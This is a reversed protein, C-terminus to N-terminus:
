FKLCMVTFGIATKISCDYKGDPHVKAFMKYNMQNHMELKTYPGAFLRMICRSSSDKTICSPHRLVFPLEDPCM